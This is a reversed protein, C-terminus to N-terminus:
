KQAEKGKKYRPLIFLIAITTRTEVPKGNMLLPEYIRQRVAEISGNAPMPVGVTFTLFLVPLALSLLRFCM